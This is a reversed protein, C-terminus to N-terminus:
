RKGAPKEQIKVGYYQDSYNTREFESAENLVIGLWKPNDLGRVGMKLAKIPAVGERVVLLTGDVLRSWLNVDVIPSMPTSDVVVWDFSGVLREFAQAFRASQLIQSPQDCASGASLFSLSIEDLKYIYHAIESKEGPRRWWQNIGELSTLGLLNGITPRHLDGEVLLVKYGFHKVLTVALNAAVLSKGENVVASTVQLSKLDGKQRINQLRAVLARFKEAALSKPETFAVLRSSESVKIKASPGDAMEVPAGMINNRLEVPKDREPAEIINNLLEVSKDREPLEIINNLLEVPKDREPSVTGPRQKEREMRRLTDYLRSV